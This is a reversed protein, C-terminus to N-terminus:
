LSLLICIFIFAYIYLISHFSNVLFHWLLSICSCCVFFFSWHFGSFSCLVPYIKKTNLKQLGAM